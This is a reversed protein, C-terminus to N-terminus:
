KKHSVVCIIKEGQSQHRRNDDDKEEVFTVREARNEPVTHARKKGQNRGRIKFDRGFILKYM